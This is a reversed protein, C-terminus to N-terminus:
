EFEGSDKNFKKNRLNQQKRNDCNNDNPDCQPTPRIMVTHTPTNIIEFEGTDPNFKSKGLNSGRPTIPRALSTSSPESSFHESSGHSSSHGSGGHGGGGGGKAHAPSVALAGTLAGAAVKKAVSKWSAEGLYKEADAAGDVTFVTKKTLQNRVSVTLDDYEAWEIAERKAEKSNNTTLIIENFMHDIVAFKDDTNKRYNMQEYNGGKEENIRDNPFLEYILM